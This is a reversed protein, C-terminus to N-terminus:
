VRCIICLQMPFLALIKLDRMNVLSCAGVTPLVLKTV